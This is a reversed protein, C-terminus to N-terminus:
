SSRLRILAYGLMGCLIVCNVLLWIWRLISPRDRPPLSELAQIPGAPILRSGDWELREPEGEGIYRDVRRGLTLDFANWDFDNAPMADPLSAVSTVHVEEEEVLTQKLGSFRQYRFTQPIFFPGDPLDLPQWQTEIRSTSVTQQDDTIRTLVIEVPRQIATDIKFVGHVTSKDNRPRSFTLERIVGNTTVDSLVTQAHKIFELVYITMDARHTVFPNPWVGLSRIDIFEGGGTTRAAADLLSGSFAFETAMISEGPDHRAFQGDFAWRSQLAITESDSGFRDWEIFARNWDTVFTYKVLVGERASPTKDVVQRYAFSASMPPANKMAQIAMLLQRVAPDDTVQTMALASVGQFILLALINM